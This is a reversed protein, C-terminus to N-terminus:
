KRSAAFGFVAAGFAAAFEFAAFVAAFVAM